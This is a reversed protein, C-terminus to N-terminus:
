SNTFTLTDSTKGSLNGWKGNSFKQWQYVPTGVNTETNTVTAKISKDMDPYVKAVNNAIGDLTIVPYGVGPRTKATLVDSKVSIDPNQNALVQI